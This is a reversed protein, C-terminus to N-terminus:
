IACVKMAELLADDDALDDLIAAVTSVETDSIPVELDNRVLVEDGIDSMLDTTKTGAPPEPMFDDVSMEQQERRFRTLDDYLRKLNGSDMSRRYAMSYEFDLDDIAEDAANAAEFRTLNTEAVMRNIQTETYIDAGATAERYAEPSLQKVNFAIDEMTLDINEQLKSQADKFSALARAKTEEDIKPAANDTSKVPPEKAAVRAAVIREGTPEVAKFQLDVGRAMEGATPRPMLKLELGPQTIAVAQRVASAAKAESVRKESVRVARDHYKQAVEQQRRIDKMRKRTLERYEEAAQTIRKTGITEVIGDLEQEAAAREANSTQRSEIKAELEKVRLGTVEDFSEITDGVTRSALEADLEDARDTIVKLQDETQVLRQHLDPFEEKLFQRDFDAEMRPLSTGPDGIATAPPAWPEDFARRTAALEDFYKKAALRDNGYPNTEAVKEEVEFAYRAARTALTDPMAALAKRFEVNSPSLFDAVARARAREPAVLQEVGRYTPAAAEFAGRLILAGGAAYGISTWPNTPAEGMQERRPQVFGFQQVAEAGGAFGAESLLRAAVTRGAGGVFMSGLLVPDRWTFSGAMSGLLNGAYGMTSARDAISSNEGTVENRMNKIDAMMEDITQVEPHLAKLERVRAERTDFERFIDALQENNYIITNPTVGLQREIIATAPDITNYPLSLDEGTLEKIRAINANYRNALEYEVSFASDVKYQQDFAASFNEGFSSSPGASGVPDPLHGFDYENSM